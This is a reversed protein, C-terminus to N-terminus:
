SYGPRVELAQTLGAKLKLYIISYSYKSYPVMVEAILSAEISGFNGLIARVRGEIVKLPGMYLAGLLKRPLGAIRRTASRLGANVEFSRAAM